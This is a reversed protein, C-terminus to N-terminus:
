KKDKDNNELINIRYVWSQKYPTYTVGKEVTKGDPLAIWQQGHPKIAHVDDYGIVRCGTLEAIRQILKHNDEKCTICARLEITAGEGAKQGLLKLFRAPMSNGDKIEDLIFPGARNTNGHGSIVIQKLCGDSIKELEAIAAEWNPQGSPMVITKGFTVRSYQYAADIKIDRTECIALSSIQEKASEEHSIPVTTASLALASLWESLLAIDEDSLNSLSEIPELFTACNNDACSEGPLYEGVDEPPSPTNLPSV